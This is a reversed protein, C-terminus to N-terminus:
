FDIGESHLAERLGAERLHIGPQMNARVNSFFNEADKFIGIYGNIPPPLYEALEGVGSFLKGFAVAAAEQNDRISGIKKLASIAEVIKKASHFNKVATEQLKLIKIIDELGKASKYISDKDSSYVIKLNSSAFELDEILENKSTYFWIQRRMVDYNLPKTLDNWFSM